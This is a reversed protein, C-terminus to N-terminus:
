SLSLVRRQIGLVALGLAVLVGTSPEPIVAIADLMSSPQVLGILAFAGTVPDITGLLSDLGAGGSGALSCSYLFVGVSDDYDLGM